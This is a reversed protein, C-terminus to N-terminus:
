KSNLSQLLANWQSGIEEGRLHAVSPKANEKCRNYLPEDYFMREMARALAKPNHNKVLLGNLENKVIETAGNCDVSVVPVGLALSEILARPFGEFHSTLVLFRANSIQEVVNKSFPLIKVYDSIEFEFIMKQFIDKDEGEGFINLKVKNRLNSANYADLLLSLNKVKDILRGLFLIYDNSGTSFPLTWHSDEIPNYITLTNHTKFKLKIQEEIEKSVCVIKSAKRIILKSIAQWSPFYLELNYSRIVYIFSFGRFMYFIYFLEKIIFQHARNDIIYNFKNEKLYRRLKIFAKAKSFTSNGKLLGFNFITGSYNYKVDNTLTVIHVDYGQKELITSLISTSKEAGGGALSITFLCVKKIKCM